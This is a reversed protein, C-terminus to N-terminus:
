KRNRRILALGGLALLSMTAPEPTFVLPTTTSGMAAIEDGTLAHDWVAINSVLGWADEWDDDAFFNVRDTYLSYRGDVDQGAGDLFLVGNIYVRFWNGNNVSLVIRNWQSADFYMGNDGSYGADGVGIESQTMDATDNYIWLDGDDDNGGYSTQLLSNYSDGTVNTQRYDWAITYQNVYSGGGNAHLGPNCQLYGYSQEQVCGNDTLLDPQSPTGITTWPAMFWTSAENVSVLDNGVTAKLKTANTAFQWFGTVGSPVNPTGASAASAIVFVAAAVLVAKKM